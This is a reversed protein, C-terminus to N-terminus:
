YKLNLRESVYRQLGFAPHPLAETNLEMIAEKNWKVAPYTYNQKHLSYGYKPVSHMLVSFSCYINGYMDNISIGM